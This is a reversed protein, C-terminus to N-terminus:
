QSERVWREAECWWAPEVLPLVVDVVRADSTWRQPLAVVASDRTGDATEWRALITPAAVPFGRELVVVLERGAGRPFAIGPTGDALLFISHRMGLSDFGRQELGLRDRGAPSEWWPRDAAATTTRAGRRAGGVDERMPNAAEDPGREEAEPRRLGATWAYLGEVARRLTEIM